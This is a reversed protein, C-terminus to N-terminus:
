NILTLPFKVEVDTDGLNCSGDKVSPQHKLTIIVNGNTATANQNLIWKSNLGIPFTGDSDTKQIVLGNVTPSVDFCVLHDKAENIIELTIDEINQPDSKDLFKVTLNSVSAKMLEITDLQIPLNGGFGDPDNFEFTSVQGSSDNTFELVVTTILEEENGKFEIKDTEDKKCSSFMISLAILINFTNIKKM